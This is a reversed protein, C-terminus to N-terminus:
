PHHWYGGGGGSYYPGPHGYGGGYHGHYPYWVCGSLSVALLFFASAPALFRKMGVYISIVGPQLLAAYSVYLNVKPCAGPPAIPSEGGTGAM